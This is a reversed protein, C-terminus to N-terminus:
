VVTSKVVSGVHVLEVIVALVPTNYLYTDGPPVVALWYRTAIKSKPPSIVEVDPSKLTVKGLAVAPLGEPDPAKNLIVPFGYSYNIANTILSLTFSVLVVCPVPVSFRAPATVPKIVKTEPIAVPFM